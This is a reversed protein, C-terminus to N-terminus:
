EKSQEEADLDNHDPLTVKVPGSTSYEAVGGRVHIDVQAQTPMQSLYRPLTKTVQQGIIEALNTIARRVSEERVEDYFDAEEGGLSDKHAGIGEYSEYCDLRLLDGNVSRAPWALDVESLITTEGHMGLWLTGLIRGYKERKSWTLYIKEEAQLKATLQSIAEIGLASDGKRANVHQLRVRERIQLEPTVYMTVAISDGDLIQDITVRCRFVERVKRALAEM